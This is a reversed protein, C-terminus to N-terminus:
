RGATNSTSVDGTMSFCWKEASHLAKAGSSQKCLFSGGSLGWELSSLWCQLTGPIEPESLLSRVPSDDNVHPSLIVPPGVLCLIFTTPAACLLKLTELTFSNVRSARLNMFCIPAPIAQCARLSFWCAGHGQDKKACYTSRLKHIWDRNLSNIVVTTPYRFVSVWVWVIFGQIHQATIVCARLM